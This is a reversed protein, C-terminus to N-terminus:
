LLQEAVGEADRLNSNAASKDFAREFRRSSPCNNSSAHERAVRRALLRMLVTRRDTTTPRM